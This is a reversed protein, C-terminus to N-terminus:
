RTKFTSASINQIRTRADRWSVNVKVELPDSTTSPYTVIIHENNLAYGGVINSYPKSAPGDVTSNPFLSLMNEFPTSRIREMMNRLDSIAVTQEKGLSLLYVSALISSLLGGFALVFIFTAILVEILTIAKNNRLKM